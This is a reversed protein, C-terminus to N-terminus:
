TGLPPAPCIDSKPAWALKPGVVSDGSWPCPDPSQGGGPVECKPLLLVHPVAPTSVPGAESRVPDHCCQPRTPAMMTGQGACPQATVKHCTQTLAWSSAPLRGEAGPGDLARVHGCLRTLPHGQQACGCRGVQRGGGDSQTRCGCWTHGAWRSGSFSGTGSHVGGGGAPRGPDELRPLGTKPPVTM